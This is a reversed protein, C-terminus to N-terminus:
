ATTSMNSENMGLLMTAAKESLLRRPTRIMDITRPYMILPGLEDMRRTVLSISLIMVTMMVKRM